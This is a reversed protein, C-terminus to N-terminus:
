QCVRNFDVCEFAAYPSEIQRTQDAGFAGSSPLFIQPEQWFKFAQQIGRLSRLRPECDLVLEPKASRFFGGYGPARALRQSRHGM